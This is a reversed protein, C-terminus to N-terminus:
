CDQELVQGEILVRLEDTSMPVLSKREQPALKVFEIDSDFIQAFDWFLSLRITQYGQEFGRIVNRYVGLKEALESRRIGREKREGHVWCQMSVLIFDATFQAAEALLEQHSFGDDQIREARSRLRADDEFFTMKM